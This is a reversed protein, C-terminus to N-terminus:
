PESDGGADKSHLKMKYSDCADCEVITKSIFPFVNVTFANCDARMVGCISCKAPGINTVKDEVARRQADSM